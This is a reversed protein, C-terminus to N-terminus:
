LKVTRRQADGPTEGFYERYCRTFYAHSAFGVKIAVANVPMDTTTLMRRAHKLRIIRVLDSPSYNTMGKIKRYLQTRNLQMEDSVDDISLKANGINREVVDIFKRYFENDVDSNSEVANSTHEPVDLRSVRSDQLRRRNELMSEVIALLTEVDFPKSLYGDAGCKYSEVLKNDQACATLMVVPIHSTVPESKLRRCVETGEIDPMMIDCIIADPIYRSALKIGQSGSSARIVKYRSGLIDTLLARIDPNDDVVLVLTEGEGAEGPSMEIDSLEENVMRAELRIIDKVPVDGEKHRLPIFFIVETGNGELSTATISGGHMEVFAKAISMGIGSGYPNAERTHINRVFLNELEETSMGKGTDSIKFYLDQSEKIGAELTVSGNEPTFKLSNSIINFIVREIKEVDLSASLGSPVNNIVSFRIHRSEAAPVFLQEIETVFGPIDTESMHMTLQDNDYKNFDLIQNILRTLIRTNKLALHLLSENADDLRARKMVRELSTGILTLPTRLDHSVNTFFSVKAKTAEELEAHLRKRVKYSRWISILLITLLILIFVAAFLLMQQLNRQKYLRDYATKMGVIKETENTMTRHHMQYLSANSRDIAPVDTINIRKAVKKGKAVALATRLIEHGLTPYLITADLRNDELAKLGFAPTGDVGELLIKDRMGKDAVVKGAEEVMHDNHGFILNVDPHMRLLSDVVQPVPDTLWRADFEAVIDFDGLSDAMERFGAAREQAPTSNLDGTIEIARIKGDIHSRAYKAAQRGVERNDAGIYAAYDAGPVDRDFVVVPIGKKSIENIVDVLAAAKAPAVLIVDPNLEAMRRLDAIQRNVDDEANAFDLSIDYDDNFLVERRMEENLTERWEGGSCQSVAIDIKPKRSCAAGLIAVVVCFLVGLRNSM